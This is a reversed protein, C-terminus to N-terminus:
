WYWCYCVHSILVLWVLLRLYVSLTKFVVLARLLQIQHLEWIHPYSDGVWDAVTSRSTNSVNHSVDALLAQGPGPLGALCAILPRSLHVLLIQCLFLSLPLTLYSQSQSVSLFSLYLSVCLTFSSPSFSVVKRLISEQTEKLVNWM